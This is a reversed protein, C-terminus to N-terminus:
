LNKKISKNLITVLFLVNSIKISASPSLQMFISCLLQPRRSLFFIYIYLLFCLLSFHACTQNYLTLLHKAIFHQRLDMILPCLSTDTKIEREAKKKANYWILSRVHWGVYLLYFFFLLLHFLFFFWQLFFVSVIGVVM